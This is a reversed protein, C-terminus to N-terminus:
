VVPQTIVMSPPADCDFYDKLFFYKYLLVTVSASPDHPTRSSAGAKQAIAYVTVDYRCCAAASWM